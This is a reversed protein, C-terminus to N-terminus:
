KKKKEHQDLLVEYMEILDRKLGTKRGFYWGIITSMLTIVGGNHGAYILIGSVILAVCAVLDQGEVKM